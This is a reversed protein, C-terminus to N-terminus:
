LGRKVAEDIQRYVFVCAAGGVFLGIISWIVIAAIMAHNYILWVFLAILAIISTVIMVTFALRFLFYEEWSKKFGQKIKFTYQRWDRMTDKAVNSM